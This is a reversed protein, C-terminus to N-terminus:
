RDGLAPERRGIAWNLVAKWKIFAVRPSPGRGLLREILSIVTLISLRAAAVTGMAARYGAGYAGGRTKQFLQLMANMKMVVAWQRVEQRSSSGGGHHIIATEGVYYNAFGAHKVKYNLDIDEAYMFYDESFMGVQEFVTRRLLMCAGPIVRVKLLKVNEAFLPAIEWLPCRPWRIRLYEADLAQNLITPFKQISSLQVTLDSNLLKCGVIGADPLSKIHGLMIPITPGTLRTDPNLFLVYTGSSQRFGLNNAGAFGLNTPSEILKIEPFEKKLVSVDGAPSANDVILIEFSVGETHEYISALCERLYDVSNWNVCVISLEM